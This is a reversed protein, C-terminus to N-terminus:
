ESDGIPAVRLSRFRVDTGPDHAQLMITGAELRKGRRPNPDPERTDRWESVQLGNVWAAMEPGNAVLLLTFWEDNEAAVIRAEQRRFIAGTGADAPRLPDGDVTDNNIQCEYGMMQDGPICRFFVGSNQGPGATKAEATLVFDDFEARTELQGPGGRVHLNGQDDIEFRGAMEPYRRWEALAEDATPEEADEEDSEDEDSEDEGDPEPLLPRLGLPRLLINRFAIRGENHQLGIRGALRPAPDTWEYLESGDLQISVTNGEVLVRYTHWREPDFDGSEAPELKRRGVLSGTPFPNDGPAINLEYCDVAPDTPVLPTRLFIGSNTEASAKFELQLEYDRWDLSTCLLSQDGADVILEEDEIRWNAAGAMQWGYLTHGDLLRIWGERRQNEPLRMALLQEADLEFTPPTMDVVAPEGTTPASASESLPEEAVPRDTAAADESPRRSCGGAGLTWLIGLWLVISAPFPVRPMASTM